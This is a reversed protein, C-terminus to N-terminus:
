QRKESYILRKTKLDYISTSDTCYFKLQLKSKEVVDFIPQCYNYLKKRIKFLEKGLINYITYEAFESNKENKKTLYFYSQLKNDRYYDIFEKSPSNLYNIKKLSIEDYNSELIVQGDINILGISKGERQESFVFTSDIKEKYIFELDKSNVINRLPQLYPYEFSSNKGNYDTVQLNEKQNETFVYKEYAATVNKIPNPKFTLTSDLIIEYYKDTARKEPNYKKIWVENKIPFYQTIYFDDINKIVQNKSHLDFFGIYSIHNYNIKKIRFKILNKNGLQEIDNSKLIIESKNDKILLLKNEFKEIGLENRDNPEVYLSTTTIFYCQNAYIFFSKVFEGVEFSYILKGKSDYLFSRTYIQNEERSETAIYFTQHMQPYEYKYFPNVEGFKAPIIVQKTLTNMVGMKSGNSFISIPITRNELIKIKCSNIFFSSLILFLINVNKKM